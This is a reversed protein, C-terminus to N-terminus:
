VELGENAPFQVGLNGPPCPSPHSHSLVPLFSFPLCLPLSPVDQKMARLPYVARGALAGGLCFDQIRGPSLMIVDLM